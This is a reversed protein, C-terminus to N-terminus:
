AILLMQKLSSCKQELIVRRLLLVMLICFAITFGVWSMKNSSDFLPKGNIFIACLSVILLLTAIVALIWRFPRSM